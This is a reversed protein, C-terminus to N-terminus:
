RPAPTVSAPLVRMALISNPSRARQAALEGVISDPSRTASVMLGLGIVMMLIGTLILVLFGSGYDKM